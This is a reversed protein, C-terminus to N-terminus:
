LCQGGLNIEPQQNITFLSPYAYFALLSPVKGFARDNKKFCLSLSIKRLFRKGAAARSKPLRICLFCGGM